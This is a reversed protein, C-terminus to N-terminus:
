LMDSGWNFGFKQKLMYQLLITVVVVVVRAMLKQISQQNIENM